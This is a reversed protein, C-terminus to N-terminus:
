QIIKSRILNWTESKTSYQNPKIVRKIVGYNKAFYHESDANDQAVTHEFQVVENYIKGAVALSAYQQKITFVSLRSTEVKWGVVFPYRFCLSESAGQNVEAVSLRARYSPNEIYDVNCSSLRETNTGYDRITGDMASRVRMDFAEIVFMAVCEPDNKHTTDIINWGGVVYQSDIAGTQQCQYIWYTGKKFNIYARMEAPVRADVIKRPPKPLKECGELLLMQAFLMSLLLAALIPKKTM